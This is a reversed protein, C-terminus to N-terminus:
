FKDNFKVVVKKTNTINIISPIRNKLKMYKVIKQLKKVKEGWNDAGMFVSSPRGDISLIVTLEKIDSVIVEALKKRLQLDMNKILKTVRQQIRNDM